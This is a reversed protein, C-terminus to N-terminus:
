GVQLAFLPLLTASSFPGNKLNNGL